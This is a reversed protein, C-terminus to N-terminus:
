WKEIGMCEDCYFDGYEEDHEEDYAYGYIQGKTTKKGCVYCKM